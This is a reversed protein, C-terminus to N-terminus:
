EGTSGIFALIFLLEALEGTAGIIDGTVGGLRRHFYWKTVLPFAAAVALPIFGRWGAIFFVALAASCGAICLDFGTVDPAFAAGLGDQRASKSGFTALTMGLRGVLPFLLIGALRSPGPLAVLAQWKLLLHLALAAVGIAGTSSDKMVALFRERSGRAGFGDAVDAVADLHLAGTILALLAVLILSVLPQPLFTRLALDSAALAAGIVLGALPFWRMSRGMDGDRYSGISPLPIITLFQMATMFLRM